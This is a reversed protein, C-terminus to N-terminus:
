EAVKRYDRQFCALINSALYYQDAANLTGVIGFDVAIYEPNKARKPNVFINGPHMDAHFFSDRFVQTFFIEVGREALAKLDIGHERLEAINAVPIGDVYEMTMVREATYDWYIEPVHIMDSDKFNRRLQSANAAERMLDLEDHIIRDFEEVVETLHL